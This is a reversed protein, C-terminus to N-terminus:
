ARRFVPQVSPGDLAQEMHDAYFASSMVGLADRLAELTQEVDTDSLAYSINFGFLYLVGRKALEQQLISRLLLSEQGNKDTFTCVTRPALGICQTHEALGLEAALNNYGEQLKKGQKWLHDIVKHSRIKDITAASAALSVAEGGFTGSFFIEDFLEMVNRRGLVASVPFGNAMAKGFCAVDPTVRYYEQAGGLAVRFGTLVEDFVLLAGNRRTLDAVKQLFGDKPEVVGVPEMIVCAVQEPYQDFIRELSSIDNYAFTKSLAQVAKPVGKNRTTTGIYWDQWGHYGCVAVMDRGTYARAVRVAASTADSGNKGFRVMEACPIAQVLREAVEMELPHSLSFVIGDQVQRTVAATVDPDNHGLIIPGLSTPYDIYENGDVDWVHSGKGRQLFIPSAGVVVQTYAKSFTQSAGPILRRSKELYQM